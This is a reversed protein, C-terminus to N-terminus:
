HFCASPGKRCCPGSCALRPWATWGLWARPSNAARLSAYVSALAFMGLTNELMNSDYMWAWSPLCAWLAVPLWSCDRLNPRDRVAAALDGRHAGGHRDGRDGFLAKRGLFSRGARSVAAVGDLVGADATRPLRVRSRVVRSALLRGHRRGHKPCDHCSHRRRFVHRAAFRRSAVARALAHGDADLRHYALPSRMPSKDPRNLASM